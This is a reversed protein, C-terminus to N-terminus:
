LYLSYTELVDFGIMANMLAIKQANHLMQVSIDREIIEKNCLFRERTTGYLLPKKPTIWNDGDFLAINAISTDTVLGNKVIIIEDANEKKEFLADIENRHLYKKSYEIDDDLLVKFNQIERKQYPFFNVELVGSEDYILKCRLCKNSPPYIYEALNLNLGITHAVRKQHYELHFVEFDECRITEFYKMTNM